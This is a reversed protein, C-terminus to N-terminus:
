YGQLHTNLFGLSTILIFNQALHFVNAYFVFRAHPTKLMQYPPFFCALSSAPEMARILPGEWSRTRSLTIPLRSSAKGGNVLGAFM